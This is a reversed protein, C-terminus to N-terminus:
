LQQGAETASQLVQNHVAKYINLVRPYETADLNGKEILAVIIRTTYEAIDKDTM